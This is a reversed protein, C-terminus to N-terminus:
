KVVSLDVPNLILVSGDEKQTLLRGQQITMGANQNVKVESKAQLAFDTNFRGLYYSKSALDVTIAYLDSGNVWLLSGPLIDDDGQKAIELSSQNVEILRVAGNGKFEGAIALVKGGIITVTRVHVTELPSSKVEKGNSDFRIIKGMIAPEQRLIAIGFFGAGLDENVIAAQQDKAIEEREQQAEQTKQEAFEDLKDADERRQQIERDREDAAQERRNLDEEDGGREREQAIQQREQDNAREAESAADRETRARQEAEDAEREKLNVMDQRQQIGMDDERRLEEVVRSDSIASTDISSLGGYGLPILIMTRGPWEDYRISLGAKERAVNGVVQAKYRNTFYDWNGRYVANYITIYEALLAADRENYDYATQLYGQIITRLNRVHDVGADVGLGFVDSNNKSEEEGSIYHAVSYRNSAGAEIKYSYAKRREATMASLTPAMAREGDAVQRGLVVGIQRIQERTDIRAHPGNFNIFVVQPLDQQLEDKNVQAYGAAAIGAFLIIAIIVHYKPLACKPIKM